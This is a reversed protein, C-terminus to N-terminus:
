KFAELASLLEETTHRQRYGDKFLKARVAGDSDIILTGPHPLGREFELQFARITASGEDSLLPFSINEADSFKKLTEPSDPSIGVVRIGASDLRELDNQM